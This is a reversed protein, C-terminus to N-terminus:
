SNAKMFRALIAAIEARTASDKPCLTTETKGRMLGSGVAYQMPSIAYATISDFDVYSRISTNEGKSVDYKKQVAYRHMIAAIQERTISDNPAFHNEDYGNVLANQSAWIVAAEYWSGGEVDSFPISRNVAPEGEARYLITVLMARTLTDSPSFLKEATGHMLSNQVAYKVDSYYWDSIKVDTFPNVFGNFKVALAPTEDAAFLTTHWVEVKGDENEYEEVLVKGFHYAAPETISNEEPLIIDGGVSIARKVYADYGEESGSDSVSVEAKGSINLAAEARIGVAKGSIKGVAGSIKVGGGIYVENDNEDWELSQYAEIGGADGLIAEVEGDIYVDGATTCMGAYGNGTITGIKGSVILDSEASIGNAEESTIDSLVADEKIVVYGFYSGIGDSLGGTAYINGLRASIDINQYAAIGSGADGYIDGLVGRLTLSGNQPFGDGEAFIGCGPETETFPNGEADVGAREVRSGRITNNGPAATDIGNITLNLGYAYIGHGNENTITADTLTLTDTMPDYQVSGGDGFVDDKNEGTVKVGGVWVRDDFSPVEGDTIAIRGSGEINGYDILFGPYEKLLPSNAADVVHNEFGQVYNALVMYDEMVYDLMNECGEFMAFGGGLDRLTYNYGALYYTNDPVINEYRDTRRDYIKVDYVRYAEPKGGWVELDIEPITNPLATNIKYSLGSTHLFSGNEGSGVNKAGWELADIIQQGSVKMLCAVNGFTHMDKCTKYTIDGSIATNRIGGGNMVAVDVAMGMDDFLYYLADAAFDGSNTEQQRVLRSGDAAYNDFTVAATGIKQGLSEDIQKMWAERLSRTEADYIWEKEGYLESNLQYGEVTEGDAAMMEECGIFDTEIADTEADIVMMGIRNFYEGTQTLIVDHGHKDQVTKEIVHHSHGDIFADLGCVGEITEESTWPASSPDIGLHGLAVVKTAGEEKAADIAAQVDKQLEEGDDGGSIGYIFNGDEDQFYAPTSKTFTEPTTIGLIALKESGCDFIVYSDLVNGGCVGNEERHFNASVYPFAALSLINMCGAMTYDFEHNGLTAVDYGAANMLKIISEGKDMSGYATGQIHDGADALFVYKYQTKLEKKLAALVDYSLPGDIYTHIDNTYLIVIDESLTETDASISLASALIVVSLLASLFKKVKM